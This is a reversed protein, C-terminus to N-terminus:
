NFFYIWIFQHTFCLFTQVDKFKISCKRLKAEVIAPYTEVEAKEEKTLMEIPIVLEAIPNLIQAIVAAILFHLDKSFPFSARYFLITLM